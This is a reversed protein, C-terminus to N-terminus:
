PMRALAGDWPRRHTEDLKLRPCFSNVLIVGTLFRFLVGARQTSIPDCSRNLDGSDTLSFSRRRNRAHLSGPARCSRDESLGSRFSGSLGPVDLVPQAMPILGPSANVIDM